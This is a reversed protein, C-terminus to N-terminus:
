AQVEVSEIYDLVTQVHDVAYAYITFEASAPSAEIQTDLELMVENLEDDNVITVAQISDNCKVIIARM